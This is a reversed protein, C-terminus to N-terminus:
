YPPRGFPQMRSPGGRGRPGSGRIIRGGRRQGRSARFNGRGRFNDQNPSIWIPEPQRFQNDDNRSNSPRFNSFHGNSNMYNRSYQNQRYNGNRQWDRDQYEEDYNYDDMYEEEEEVGEYMNRYDEDVFSRTDDDQNRMDFQRGRLDNMVNRHDFNNLQRMDDSGRNSLFSLQNNVRMDQDMGGKESENNKNTISDWLSGSQNQSSTSINSQDQSNNGSEDEEDIYAANLYDEDDDDDNHPM